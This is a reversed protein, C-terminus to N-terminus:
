ERLDKKLMIIEDTRYEESFGNKKFLSVSPNDIAIDDYLVDIGNKGATKCLLNIGQTGYGRGRYMFAVIIDAMWIKRDNDFHYAIEGIFEDSEQKMLYRYFRKKDQTIVWNNYWRFWESEPFPIIGGCAHNYSMTAEDSMIKKRFWLDELRPEYLKIIENKLLCVM